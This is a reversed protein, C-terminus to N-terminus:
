GAMCIGAGSKIRKMPSNKLETKPHLPFYHGANDM